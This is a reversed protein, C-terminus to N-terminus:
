LNCTVKLGFGESDESNNGCRLIERQTQKGLAVVRQSRKKGSLSRKRDKLKVYISYFYCEEPINRLTHQHKSVSIETCGKGFHRRIVVLVSQRVGCFLSHRFCVAAFFHSTTCSLLFNHALFFFYFLASTYRPVSCLSCQECVTTITALDLRRHVSRTTRM